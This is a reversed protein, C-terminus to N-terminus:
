GEAAAKELEEDSIDYNHYVDQVDDNEELNDILRLVKGVDSGTVKVTVKPLMTVKSEEIKLNFEDLKSRVDPFSTPDCTIEFGDDLKKM